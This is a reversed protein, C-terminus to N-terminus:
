RKKHKNVYESVYKKDEKSLWYNKMPKDYFKDETDYEIKKRLYSRVVKNNKKKHINRDPNETLPINRHHKGKKESETLGLHGYEGNYYDVILKPHKEQKQGQKVKYRHFTFIEKKGKM